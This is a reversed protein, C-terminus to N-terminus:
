ARDGARKAFVLGAIAVMCCQWLFFAVVGVVFIRLADDKHSTIKGIPDQMWEFFLPHDARIDYAAEAQQVALRFFARGGDGLLRLGAQANPNNYEGCKFDRSTDECCNTGVAWFDYTPLRKGTDNGQPWPLNTIPVVCYTTDKKFAMQKDFDLRHGPTFLVSGADAVMEGSTVSVDVQPYIQLNRADYFRIGNEYFNIDGMVIGAAWALCLSACLFPHWSTQSELNTPELQARQARGCAYVGSVIVLFLFFCNIGATCLPNRYHLSFSMVGYITTFMGWPLFLSLVLACQNFTRGQRSALRPKLSDVQRMAAGYEQPAHRLPKQLPLAGYANLM